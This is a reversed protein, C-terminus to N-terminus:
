KSLPLGASLWSNIGGKLVNVQEFGAKFLANAAPGATLGATCVVIIPKAKYKELASFDNAKLKDNSYNVADVIHSTNFENVARIDIVVGDERNVIRTLEQPSIQKIPSMQMKISTVIVLVFLGIWAGSLLPHATIFAILDQM